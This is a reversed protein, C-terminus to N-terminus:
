GALTTENMTSKKGVTPAELWKHKIKVRHWIFLVHGALCVQRPGLALSAKRRSSALNLTGCM